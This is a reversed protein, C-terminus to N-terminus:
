NIAQLQQQTSSSQVSSPGYSLQNDVRNRLKEVEKERQLKKMTMLDEEFLKNVVDKGNKLALFNSVSPIEMSSQSVDVM